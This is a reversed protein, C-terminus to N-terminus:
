SRATAYLTLVANYGRTQSLNLSRRYVNGNWVYKGRHEGGAMGDHYWVDGHIDISRTVFHTGNYYVIGRLSLDVSQNHVPVSVDTDIYPLPCSASQRLHIALLTPVDQYVYQVNMRQGCIACAHPSRTYEDLSTLRRLFEAVSTVENVGQDIYSVIPRNDGADQSVSTQGCTLCSHKRQSNPMPVRVSECLIDAASAFQGPVFKVPDVMELYKRYVDRGESPSIDGGTCRQFLCSLHGLLANGSTTFHGGWRVTDSSWLAYLLAYCSDYACSNNSWVPAALSSPSCLVSVPSVVRARKLLNREVGSASNSLMRKTKNANYGSPARVPIRAKESANEASDGALPLRSGPAAVDTKAAAKKNSAQSSVIQWAIDDVDVVELPDKKSWRIARYVTPPVYDNGM